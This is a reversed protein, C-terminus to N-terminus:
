CFLIAKIEQCVRFTPLIEYDNYDWFSVMVVLGLPVVFFLLFVLGMPM